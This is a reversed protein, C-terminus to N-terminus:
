WRWTLQKYKGFTDNYLDNVTYVSAYKSIGMNIAMGLGLLPSNTVTGFIISEATTLGARKGVISLGKGVLALGANAVGAWAASILNVEWVSKEDLIMQSAIDGVAGVAFTILLMLPVSDVETILGTLGGVVAGIAIGKWVNQGNAAASVGGYIGGLVAGIGFAILFAIASHGTPDYKNIPDNGCYAYLNLGSISEPDLYEISDPSIWRCLEPSYYRSSVFYLQTEVDYYYGKYKISNFRANTNNNNLIESKITGYDEYEYTVVEQNNADLIGNINGLVDRKYIYFEETAEKLYKFGYIINNEDYLYEIEYNTTNESVKEYKLLGNFYIYDYTKIAGNQNVEKHTRIDNHDYEYTVETLSVGNDNREYKKLQTLRNSIWTYEYGSVIIDNEKQIAYSKPLSSLTDYEFELNNYKILRNLNDYEYNITTTEDKTKSIINGHIDYAYEYQNNGCISKILQHKNDYYYLKTYNPTEIRSVLDGNYTYSIQDAQSKNNTESTVRNYSDYLFVKEVSNAVTHKILMGDENYKKINVITPTNDFYNDVASSTMYISSLGVDTILGDFPCIGSNGYEDNIKTFSTGINMRPSLIFSTNNSSTLFQHNDVRIRINYGGTEYYDATMKEWSVSVNSWENEKITLQTQIIKDLFYLRLQNKVKIVSINLIARAKKGFSKIKMLITHSNASPTSYILDQGHAFYVRRNIDEDFVFNKNIENDLLDNPNYLKPKNM